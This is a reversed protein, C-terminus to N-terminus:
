SRGRKGLARASLRRDVDDATVGTIEVVKDRSSAGAVLTVDARRVGLAESLLAAVEDNARGGEPPATVRLKWADGHRGTVENRSGRPSVRLQVRAAVM